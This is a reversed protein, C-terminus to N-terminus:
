VLRYLLRSDRIISHIQTSLMCTKPQFSSLSVYPYLVHWLALPAVTYMCQLLAHMQFSMVLLSQGLPLVIHNVIRGLLLVASQGSHNRKKMPVYGLSPYQSVSTKEKLSRAVVLSSGKSQTLLLWNPFSHGDCWAEHIILLVIPRPLYYWSIWARMIQSLSYIYSRGIDPFLWGPFWNQKLSNDVHKYLSYPICCLM